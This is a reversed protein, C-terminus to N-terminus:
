IIRDYTYSFYKLPSVGDLQILQNNTIMWHGDTTVCVAHGGTKGRLHLIKAKIGASKFLFKGFVAAGDCDDKYGRAIFTIVWPTWDKFKDPTYENRSIILKISHMNGRDLEYYTKQKMASKYNQPHFLWYLCNIIFSWGPCLIYVWIKDAIKQM